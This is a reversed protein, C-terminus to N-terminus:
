PFGYLGRIRPILLAKKLPTRDPLPPRIIYRTTCRACGRGKVPVPSKKVFADNIPKYSCCVDIM